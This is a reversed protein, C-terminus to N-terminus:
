IIEGPTGIHNEMDKDAMFISDSSQQNQQSQHTGKNDLEKGKGQFRGWDM